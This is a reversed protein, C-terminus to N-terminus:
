LAEIYNDNLNECMSSLYGSKSKCSYSASEQMWGRLEGMEVWSVVPVRLFANEVM